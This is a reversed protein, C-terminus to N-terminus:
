YNQLSNDQFLERYQLRLIFIRTCTWLHVALHQMYIFMCIDLKKVLPPDLQLRRGRFFHKLNHVIIHVHVYMDNLYTVWIELLEWFGYIICTCQECTLNEPNISTLNFNFLNVNKNVLPVFRWLEIPRLFQSLFNQCDKAM